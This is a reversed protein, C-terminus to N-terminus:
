PQRTEILEFQGHEPSFRVDSSDFAKGIIGSRIIDGPKGTALGGQGDPLWVEDALRLSLELDHSSLLALFTDNGHNGTIGRISVSAFEDGDGENRRFSVGPVGRFEDTGFTFGRQRLEEMDQISVSVPVEMVSMPNRTASIVVEDFYQLDTEGKVSQQAYLSICWSGALSVMLVSPVGKRLLRNAFHHNMAPKNM